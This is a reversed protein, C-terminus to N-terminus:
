RLRQFSVIRAAPQGGRLGIDIRVSYDQSTEGKPVYLMAIFRARGRMDLKIPLDEQVRFSYSERKGAPLKEKLVPEFLARLDLTAAKDGGDLAYYALSYTDWRDNSVEVVARSDSSWAAIIESRNARMEGTAWYVGGLKALVAGDALRILVNEVDGTPLNDGSPLGKSSRWAFAFKGSPSITDAIVRLANNGDGCVLGGYNDANCPEAAVVQPLYLAAVLAAITLARRMAKTRSPM